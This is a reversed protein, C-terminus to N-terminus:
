ESHWEMIEKTAVNGAGLDWLRSASQATECSKGTVQPQDDVSFLRTKSIEVSGIYPKTSLGKCLYTYIYINFLCIFSYIYIYIYLYICIYSNETIYNHIIHIYLHLDILQKRLGCKIHQCAESQM